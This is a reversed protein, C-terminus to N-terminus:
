ILVSKELAQQPLSLPITESQFLLSEAGDFSFISLLTLPSVSACTARPSPLPNPPHTHRHPSDSLCYSPFDRIHLSQLLPGLALFHGPHLVHATYGYFWSDSCLVQTSLLLLIPETLATKWHQKALRSSLEASKSVITLFFMLKRRFPHQQEAVAM